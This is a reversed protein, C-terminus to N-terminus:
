GKVEFPLLILKAQKRVNCNLHVLRFNEFSHAGGKSLPTVHDISYTEPRNRKGCLYCHTDRAILAFMERPSIRTPLAFGHELAFRRRAARKRARVCTRCERCGRHIWTNEATFEHGHVCHTQSVRLAPISTPGRLLSERHPVAEMHLPNVCTTSRCIRTVDFGSPIPGRFQEFAYRHALMKTSRKGLSMVPYGNTMVAGRWLWCGSPNVDVRAHFREIL